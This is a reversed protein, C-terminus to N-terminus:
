TSKFLASANLKSIPDALTVGGEWWGNGNQYRYQLDKLREGFRAKLNLYHHSCHTQDTLSSSACVQAAIPFLLASCLLDTLQLAAHNDSHGFTPLEVLRAYPDGGASYRQTFISHSVNANKPKNRSDAIVIGTDSKTALFRQFSKCIGQVTSSYVASGNFQGGIPKIFVRGVLKVQYKELIDLASGIVMYAFRRDNRSNSRAMNRLSSGKVEVTMWDHYLSGAPLQKPFFKQKLQILDNTLSKVHSEKVFTGALAFVPQIPSSADPLAGTCGAEDIYCVFMGDGSVVLAM